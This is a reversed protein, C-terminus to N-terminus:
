TKQYPQCLCSPSSFTSLSGLSISRSSPFTHKPCVRSLQAPHIAARAGNCLRTRVSVDTVGETERLMGELVDFFDERSVHKPAVCLTDIDTGPGHVGLRYSGFTYIKGGAANAATESLGRALSIQRVFKKVLAALRGLVIERCPVFTGVDSNTQPSQRRALAARTADHYRHAFPVVFAGQRPNM